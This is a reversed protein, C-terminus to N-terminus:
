IRDLNIQEYIWIPLEVLGDESFWEGSLRYKSLKEHISMELYGKDKLSLLVELKSSNATQLQKCRKYPDNSRGIKFKKNKIDQIIYLDNGKKM